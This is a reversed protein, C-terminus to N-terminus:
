YIGYYGKSEEATWDKHYAASGENFSQSMSKAKKGYQGDCIDDFEFKAKLNGLSCTVYDQTGPIPNCDGSCKLKDGDISYPLADRILNQAEKLTRTQTEAYRKTDSFLAKTTKIDKKIREIESQDKFKNSYSCYKDKFKRLEDELAYSTLTFKSAVSIDNRADYLSQLNKRTAESLLDNSLLNYVDSFNVNHLKDICPKANEYVFEYKSQPSEYSLWCGGDDDVTLSYHCLEKFEYGKYRSDTIKFVIDSAGDEAIENSCVAIKKNTASEFIVDSCRASNKINTKEAYFRKDKTYVRGAPHYAGDVDLALSKTGKNNEVVLAYGFTECMDPCQKASKGRGNKLFDSKECYKICVSVAENASFTKRNLLDDMIKNYTSSIETHTGYYSELGVSNAAAVVVIANWKIQTDATIKVAFVPLAILVFLPLIAKKM